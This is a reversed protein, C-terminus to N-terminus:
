AEQPKAVSAAPTQADPPFRSLMVFSRGYHGDEKPVDHIPHFERPPSPKSFRIPEAAQPPVVVWFDSFRWMVDRKQTTLGHTEWLFGAILRPESDMVPLPSRGAPLNANVCRVATDLANAEEIAARAKANVERQIKVMKAVLAERPALAADYAKIREAEAESERATALEDTLDDLRRRAVTVENVAATTESINKNLAALGAREAAPRQSALADYKATANDLASDAKAREDAIDAATRMTTTMPLIETNTISEFDAKRVFHAALDARWEL